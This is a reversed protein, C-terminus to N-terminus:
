EELQLLLKSGKVDIEQKWVRRDEMDIYYTSSGNTGDGIEDTVSVVWVKREGSKETQLVGTKVDRIWAKMLGSRSAPNFDYISIEQKYGEKLPLWPIMAPYINSDFFGANVTDSLLLKKGSRKDVHYGTIPKGFDVVMDRQANYSSHRIARLTQEDAITSDVWDSKSQALEVRTVVILNGQGTLVQTSIEGIRFRATDRVAYWSMKSTNNRVWKREIVDGGPVLMTQSNGSISIVIMILTILRKM